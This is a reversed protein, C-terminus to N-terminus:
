ARIAPPPTVSATYTTIVGVDVTKSVDLSTVTSDPSVSVTTTGESGAVNSSSNPTFIAALQEPSTRAAFSTQCAASPTSPTISKPVCGAIPVGRNTFTITGSPSGTSSSATAVLTVAENTVASSPFAVFSVIGGGATEILSANARLSVTTDIASITVEGPTTSSRILASYIGRGNNTVQLFRVGSDSSSFVVTDAPVPNGHADAVRATATTVSSGDAIISSPQLTLTINEARGRTETLTTQGSAPPSVSTDTATVTSVGATASSTLTAAYAGNPKEKTPSFHIANDSSSFVVTHGLIRAGAKTVIATAISTSAGDAVVSSPSLKVTVKEAAPAAESIAALLWWSLCTSLFAGVIFSQTRASRLWRLVRRELCDRM